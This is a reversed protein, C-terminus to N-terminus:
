IGPGPQVSCSMTHTMATVDDITKPEVNPFSFDHRRQSVDDGAAQALDLGGGRHRVQVTVPDPDEFWYSVVIGIGQPGPYWSDYAPCPQSPAQDEIASHFQSGAVPDEATNEATGVTVPPPPSSPPRNAAGTPVHGDAVGALPPVGSLVSGPAVPLTATVPDVSVAAGNM